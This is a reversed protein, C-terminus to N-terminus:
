FSFFCKCKVRLPLQNSVTEGEANIASCSYNGSSNRNVKQLVLSQNSRIVRASANHSILIGQLCIFRSIFSDVFSNHNSHTCTNTFHVESEGRKMYIRNSHFSSMLLWSTKSENTHFSKPSIEIQLKVKWKVYAHV